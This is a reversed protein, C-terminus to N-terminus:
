LAVKRRFANWRAWIGQTKLAHVQAQIWRRNRFLSLLERKSAVESRHVGSYLVGRAVEFAKPSYTRIIDNETVNNWTCPPFETRLDINITAPLLQKVPGDEFLLALPRGELYPIASDLDAPIASCRFLFRGYGPPGERDVHGFDIVEHVSNVRLNENQLLAATAAHKVEPNSRLERALVSVHNSLLTENPAVVMFGDVQERQTQLLDNIVAGLLRTARIAGTSDREVFRLEVVTMSTKATAIVRDIETRECPSVGKDVILNAQQDPYDQSSASAVHQRLTAIDYRPMLYNVAVTFPTTVAPQGLELLQQKRAQLGEYLTRLNQILSFGQRFIDQAQAIKDLADSPNAQAWGLHRRIDAVIKEAPDRSDIYLLCDGFHRKAFRNEDCIVLAGAAVTEFLRNSMIGAEKHAASSLVLAAGAKHLEKVMSTGDFPVEKVYSQYGAWVRVGMFMHPGYIRLLGSGDLSKLVEQHRSQGARLADWNIGAYAVKGDGLSPPYMIDATSHYLKFKPALHTSSRRIMRRVHDDAADSSCSIFDDHSTLNRSARLYGWEEYFKVPNWLAVFSFADYNKPTDYHLHVVFDVLSRDVTVNPDTILTGDSNVEVCELGLAASAIKLRAICEDEANKIEPWLKVVGFRGILGGPLRFNLGM